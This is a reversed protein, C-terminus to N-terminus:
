AAEAAPAQRRITYIRKGTGPERKDLSMEVGVSALTPALRRLDGGLKQPRKPFGLVGAATRSAGRLALLLESATGSFEGGRKQLLTILAEALPDSALLTEDAAVRNRGYAALFDDESWGLAPAVAMGWAVFDAMRTLARKEKARRKAAPLLYMGIATADLLRAVIHSHAAHYEAWLEQEPISEGKPIAPLELVIARDALDGRTALDAIGNIIIPRQADFINEENDTYLRRGGLGGGTALQCLADSMDASM